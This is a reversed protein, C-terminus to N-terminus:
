WRSWEVKGAAQKFISELVEIQKDSLSGRNEFQSEFSVVLDMQADTLYDYEMFKFIHEIREQM